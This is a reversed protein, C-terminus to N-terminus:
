SMLYRICNFISGPKGWDNELDMVKLLPFILKLFSTNGKIEGKTNTSGGPTFMGSRSKLNILPEEIVKKKQGYKLDSTLQAAMTVPKEYKHNMDMIDDEIKEQRHGFGTLKSELM